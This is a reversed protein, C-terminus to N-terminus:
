DTYLHITGYGRGSTYAKEGVLVSMHVIRLM